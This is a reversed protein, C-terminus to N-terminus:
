DPENEAQEFPVFKFNLNRLEDPVKPIPKTWYVPRIFTECQTDPCRYRLAYEWEYRCYKSNASHESWFLQFIDAEDIAKALGAQWNEGARLNDVDLFVDNGLATQALKYSRAIQADHRSYSIFIRHYPTTTKSITKQAALPNTLMIFPVSGTHVSNQGVIEIATNIHAVEIGSIQISVRVVIMLNKLQSDTRFDFDYRTWDGHWKKTLSQPEFELKESEPIVTIPTGVKITTKEDADKPYIPFDGQVGGVDKEIEALMEGIFAYLHFSSRSQVQVTIPSYLRFGVENTAFHLDQDLGIGAGQGAQRVEIIDGNLVGVSAFTQYLHITKGTRSNLLEYPRGPQPLSLFPGKDDGKLLGEIAQEGTISLLVDATFFLSNDRPHIFKVEVRGDPGDQKGNNALPEYARARWFNPHTEDTFRTWDTTPVWTTGDPLITQSNCIVDRIEASKLNAGNLSTGSLNTEILRVRYLNSQTLDANQLSAQRLSSNKMDASKLISGDFNAGVMGANHLIAGHLNSQLFDGHTMTANMLYANRFDVSRLRAKTFNINRLDADRLSIGDLNGNTLWGKRRLQEAARNTTEAITSGLEAVLKEYEQRTGLILEFLLFTIIAGLMETSFNQLWESRWEATWGDPNDLLSLISTAMAIALLLALVSRSGFNKLM